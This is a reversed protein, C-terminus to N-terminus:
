KQAKMNLVNNLCFLTVKKLFIHTYEKVYDEGNYFITKGGKYDDNLYMQVTICSVNDDNDHYTLDYHRRFYNGPGYKLYRFMPNLGVLVKDEFKKPLYEYIVGMIIESLENDIEMIRKCDRVTKDLVQKEGNNILANEWKQKNLKEIIKDCFEDSLANQLLVAFGYDKLESIEM